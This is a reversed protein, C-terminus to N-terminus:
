VRMIQILGGVSELAPDSALTRRGVSSWGFGSSQARTRGSAIAHGSMAPGPVFCQTQRAPAATELVRCSASASVVCHDVPAACAFGETATIYAVSGAFTDLPHEPHM